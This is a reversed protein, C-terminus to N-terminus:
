LNYGNNSKKTDREKIDHLNDKSNSNNVGPGNDKKDKNVTTDSHKKQAPQSKQTNQTNNTKPAPTNVKKKDAKDSKNAPSPTAQQKSADVGTLVSASDSVVVTSDATAEVADSSDRIAFFWIAWGLLGLLALAGLSIGAITMPRQKAYPDKVTEWDFEWKKALSVVDTRRVEMPQGKALRVGNLFTGNSSTDVIQMKGWFDFILEAHHRSVLDSEDPIVIDCDNGRGIILKKM